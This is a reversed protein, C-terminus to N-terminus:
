TASALKLPVLVPGDWDWLTADGKRVVFLVTGDMQQQTLNRSCRWGQQNREVEEM